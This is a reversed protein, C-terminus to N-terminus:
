LDDPGVPQGPPVPIQEADGPPLPAEEAQQEGDAKRASEVPGPDIWMGRSDLRMTGLDLDLNMRQVEQDVWVSLFQNQAQLLASFDSLLREVFSQGLQLRGGPEKPQEMLRLGSEEVRAIAVLVAARQVEFDLQDLRITRLRDRLSQSVRDEFAYYDRRARQYNILAQRYANREALRTLPADFELGVRLHGTSSRFQVPNNDTTDIDGSFTVDLGSRLDNARVEIQRWTDVLDARANMWDRRNTRAIELAEEPSLDIPPLTVADLRAQAQILSLELLDKSLQELSEIFRQSSTDEAGGPKAPGKPAPTKFSELEELVHRIREAVVVFDKQVAAVRTDLAGVDGISPDIDGRKFEEREALRRLNERREPLVRELQQMDNDVVQLQAAADRRISALTDWHGEPVLQGQEQLKRLRELLANAADRTATLKPTILDFKALLPDEIRVDLDPPLGLTIKYGDLRAEYAANLALLGSQSNYLSQRTRDVDGRATGGGEYSAELRDTSRRLQALNAEQNRIRVQDALLRLHDVITQVCFSRRFRELGRIDALFGRESATLSELVVARGGARLLPQVLSFDLLTNASYTDPGAFQWVLSNAAGVVLDGGTALLKRMQLDTDTSLLSRGGALPGTADFSTSNGGFFQTDFQFQQLTVDLASLYVDELAQQYERSHLWAMEMAADRDLVVEGQDNQPLFVKWVPNEVYATNGYRHWCPWGRKGDVCHMLRHATPDDPPMPPRDPDFPDYMRSKPDPQITFGELPWRPDTAADHVLADVEQDAQRRYFARGCGGTGLLTVCLM